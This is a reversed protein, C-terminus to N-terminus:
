LLPGYAIVDVTADAANGSSNYIKIKRADKDILEWSWGSGVNQLTVACATMVELRTVPIVRGGAASGSWDSTDADLIQESGTNGLLELMLYTLRLVATGDGSLRWRLM